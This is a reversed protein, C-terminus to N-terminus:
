NNFFNGHLYGVFLALMTEATFHVACFVNEPFKIKSNKVTPSNAKELPSKESLLKAYASSGMDITEAAVVPGVVISIVNSM